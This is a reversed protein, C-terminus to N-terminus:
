RRWFSVCARDLLTVRHDRRKKPSAAIRCVVRRVAVTVATVSM